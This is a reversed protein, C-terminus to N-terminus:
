TLNCFDARLLAQRSGESSARELFLPHWQGGSGRLLQSGPTAAGAFILTFQTTAADSDRVYVRELVLSSGSQAGFRQGIRSQWAPLSSDGTLRRSAAGSLTPMALTPWAASAAALAGAGTRMFDRKNM